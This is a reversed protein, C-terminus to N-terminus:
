GSGPVMSDRKVRMFHPGSPTIRDPQYVALGPRGTEIQGGRLQELADGLDRHGANWRARASTPSFDFAKGSVERGQDCYTLHLMTICPVEGYEGVRKAREDFVAQWTAIARRSQSAFILDQTRCIADGLSEPRPAERPLLDLAICLLRGAPPSSLVVDLPLNASLGADALLRGDVEVPPFAPLLASSARLHKSTIVDRGTDFLVDDGSELDVATVSLRPRGRNLRGFDVMKELTASLPTTDYLSAPEPNNFPEWLPGFIRRPTFVRPCGTALTMSAALTRRAEDDTEAWLGNPHSVDAPGPQWFEELRAIRQEAPNGCILAGNVAGASAAAVWDPEIGEEQLAQYAGAQYSGM